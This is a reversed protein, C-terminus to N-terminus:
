GPNRLRWCAGRKVVQSVVSWTMHHFGLSGVFPGLTNQIFIGNADYGYMIFGKSYEAYELATGASNIEYGYQNYTTTTLNTEIILQGYQRLFYKLDNTQNRVYGIECGLASGGTGNCVYGLSFCAQM